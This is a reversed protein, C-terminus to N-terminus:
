RSVELSFRRRLGARSSSRAWSSRKRRGPTPCGSSSSGSLGGSLRSSIGGVPLLILALIEIWGARRPRVDLREREEAAIEAPDGLRELLNRIEAESEVPVNARAEAIHGAIEDTLERRHARPLDRLEDKLRKLYDDVLRDATSTM